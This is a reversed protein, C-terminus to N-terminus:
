IGRVSEAFSRQVNRSCEETLGEYKLFNEFEYVSCICYLIDQWNLSPWVDPEVSLQLFVARAMLCVQM